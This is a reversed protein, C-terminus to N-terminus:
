AEAGVEVLIADLKELLSKTGNEIYGQSTELRVSGEQLSSDEKIEVPLEVGGLRSIDAPNLFLCCPKMEEPIMAAVADVRKRLRVADISVEGIIQHILRDVVDAFVSALARPPEAKLVELSRALQGVAQREEKVEILASNRGQQFGQDYAEKKIAEIDIPPPLDAEAKPEVKEQETLEAEEKELSLREKSSEAEQKEKETPEEPVLGFRVVWPVFPPKAKKIAVFPTKEASATEEPIIAQAEYPQIDQRPDDSM